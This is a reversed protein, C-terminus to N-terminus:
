SSNENWQADSGKLFAALCALLLQGPIGWENDLKPSLTQNNNEVSYNDNHGDLRAHYSGSSALLKAISQVTVARESPLESNDKGFLMKESTDMM